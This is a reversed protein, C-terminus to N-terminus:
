KQRSGPSPSVPIELAALNYGGWTQRAARRFMQIRVYRAEVPPFMVRHTAKWQEWPLGKTEYVRRWSSPQEPAQATVEVAFHEPHIKWGWVLNVRSVSRVEGLDVMIWAQEAERPAQWSTYFNGDVAREPAEGGSAQVPRGCAADVLGVNLHIRNSRFRQGSDDVAVARLEYCGAPPDDWEWRFQRPPNELVGIREGDAWFEVRVVKGRRDVAYGDIRVPGATFWAGGDDLPSLLGVVPPPDEDGFAPLEDLTVVLPHRVFAIAQEVPRRASPTGWWPLAYLWMPTRGAVLKEPNPIEDCEGLALMKGPSVEAMAKFFTWYPEEDQAPDVGYLDIGSLDVYQPGPYFRKRLEVPKRKLDGVGASYVWILNHLQRENTFYRFMMRWLEATNEPRSLDTWWFWGGDIEHLPRWLVVIGAEQLKQLVDATRALEAMATAHEQTGPTVVRGVDVPAKRRNTWASDGGLHWHWHLTLLYGHAKAHAIVEEVPGLWQIDRGWIAALMGTQEYDDPTHVYVNYGLLIRRGYISGFYQLIERGKPCLNPDAPEVAFVQPGLGALFFYLLILALVCIKGLDWPRTM